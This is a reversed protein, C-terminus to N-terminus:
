DIRTLAADAAAAEVGESGLYAARVLESGLMESATGEFLMRGFDLVYVRDCVQQVLSMDHEVLLIGVPRVAMVHLLLRGFERTEAVDLGSSPEDLL